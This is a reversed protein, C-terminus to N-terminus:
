IELFAAGEDTGDDTDYDLGYQMRYQVSLFEDSVSVELAITVRVSCIVFVAMKM